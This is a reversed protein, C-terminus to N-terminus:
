EGVEIKVALKQLEVESFFKEEKAHKNYFKELDEKYILGVKNEMYYPHGIFTSEKRFITALKRERSKPAVIYLHNATSIEVDLLSAFREIGSNISTSEEVEFAYRPINM